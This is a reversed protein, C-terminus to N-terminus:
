LNVRITNNTEAVKVVLGSVVLVVVQEGLGFGFGFLYDFFLNAVLSVLVIWFHKVKGTNFLFQCVVLFVIIYLSMLGLVQGYFVSLFLGSLFGLWYVWGGMKLVLLLPWFVGLGFVAEGVFLSLFFLGVSKINNKTQM